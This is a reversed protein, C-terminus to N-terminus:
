LVGIIHAKFEEVHVGDFVTRGVGVMGPRVDGIGMQPAAASTLVSVGVVIALLTFLTRGTPMGGNQCPIPGEAITM